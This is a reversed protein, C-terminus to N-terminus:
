HQLRPRQQAKHREHDRGVHAPFQWDILQDYVGPGVLGRRLSIQHQTFHDDIASFPRKRQEVLLPVLRAYLATGVGEGHHEHHVYVAIDVTFAYACRGKHEAGRAFGRVAGDAEAVLWPYSARTRKWVRRIEQLAHPETNFNSATHLIAWNVIDLMAPLDDPEALRVRM